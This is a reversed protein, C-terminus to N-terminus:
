DIRIFTYHHNTFTKEDIYYMCVGGGTKEVEEITKAFAILTKSEKPSINFDIVSYDLRKELWEAQQNAFAWFRDFGEDEPDNIIFEENYSLVFDLSKIGGLQLTQDEFVEFYFGDKKGDVYYKGTKLTGDGHFTFTDIIEANPRVTLILIVSTLIIVTSVFGIIGVRKKLTQTM